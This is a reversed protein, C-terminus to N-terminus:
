SQTLAPDADAGLIRLGEAGRLRRMRRLFEDYAGPTFRTRYLRDVDLLSELERDYAAASRSEESLMEALGEPLGTLGVSKRYSAFARCSCVGKPNVLSCRSGYHDAALKRARHLYVRVANESIELIDATEATSFDLIARLTYVARFRAPMCNMFMQLCSERIMAALAADESDGFGRVYSFAEDETMGLKEAFAVIPLRRKAKAYRRGERLLIRYLWTHATSEGRFSPFAAFAALFAAQLLDEADERNGALRVALTFLREYNTRYIAVFSSEM